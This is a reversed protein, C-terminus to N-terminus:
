EIDISIGLIDGAEKALDEITQGTEAVNEKEEKLICVLKLRKGTHEEMLKEIQEKKQEVYRKTFSSGALVVFSDETVQHLSTGSRILNFSGASGEGEEFIRHWLNYNDENM